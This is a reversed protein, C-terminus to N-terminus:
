RWPALPIARPRLCRRDYGQDLMRQLLVRGQHLADLTNRSAGDSVSFLRIRPHKAIRDKLASVHADHPLRLCLSVEAAPTNQKLTYSFCSTWCTADGDVALDIAGV